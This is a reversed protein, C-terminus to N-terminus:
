IFIPSGLERGRRPYPTHAALCLELRLYQLATQIATPIIAYAWRRFFAASRDKNPRM